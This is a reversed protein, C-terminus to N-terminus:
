IDFFQGFVLVLDLEVVREHGHNLRGNLRRLPLPHVDQGGLLPAHTRVLPPILNHPQPRLILIQHHTLPLHLLFQYLPISRIQLHPGPQLKLLLLYCFQLLERLCKLAYDDLLVFGFEGDGGEEPGEVAVVFAELVFVEYFGGFVLM